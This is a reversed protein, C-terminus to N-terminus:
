GSTIQSVIEPAFDRAMQQVDEVSRVALPSPIVVIRAGPMGLSTVRAQAARTFSSTIVSVSPIGQSETM